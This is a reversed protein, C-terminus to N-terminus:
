LDVSDAFFQWKRGLLHEYSMCQLKSRISTETALDAIYKISPMKKSQQKSQICNKSTNIYHWFPSTVFIYMNMVRARANTYGCMCRPRWQWQLLSELWDVNRRNQSIPMDITPLLNSLRFQHRTEVPSQNKNKNERWHLASCHDHRNRSKLVYCNSDTPTPRASKKCLERTVQRLLLSQKKRSRSWETGHIHNIRRRMACVLFFFLKTQMIWVDNFQSRGCVLCLFGFNCKRLILAPSSSHVRAYCCSLKKRKNGSKEDGIQDNMAVHYALNPPLLRGLSSSLPVDRAHGDFFGSYLSHHLQHWFNKQFQSVFHAVFSRQGKPKLWHSIFNWQCPSSILLSTFESEEPRLDLNIAIWCSGIRCVCRPLCHLCCGIAANM